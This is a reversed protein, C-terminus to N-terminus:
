ASACTGRSSPRSFMRSAVSKKPGAGLPCRLVGERQSLLVPRSESDQVNNFVHTGASLFLFLPYALDVKVLRAPEHRRLAFAPAVDLKAYGEARSDLFDNICRALRLGIQDDHAGLRSLGEGPKHRQRNRVVDRGLGLARHESHAASRRSPPYRPRYCADSFYGAFHNVLRAYFPRSSIFPTALPRASLNRGACLEAEPFCSFRPATIFNRGKKPAAIPCCAYIFRGPTRPVPRQPGSLSLGGDGGQCLCSHLM